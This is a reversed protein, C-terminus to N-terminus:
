KFPYFVYVLILGTVSFISGIVLFPLTNGNWAPKNTFARWKFSFGSMGLFLFGIFLIGISILFLSNQMM